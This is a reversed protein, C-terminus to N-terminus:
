RHIWFFHLFRARFRSQPIPKQAKGKEAEQVCFLRLGATQIKDIIFKRNQFTGPRSPLGSQILFPNRGRLRTRTECRAETVIQFGQTNAM